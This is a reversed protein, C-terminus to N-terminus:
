RGTLGRRVLLPKIEPEKGRFKKYLEMPDDTGGAALIHTRFARATASDFLGNEKFAEFADADLVEAWIYSYYGASYGGAFIHRFYPTRYRSIIEPILGIRDLSRKEFVIPDQATTDALTHWDMDLLSAALYEVTAFGQNFRSSKEIKAILEDPMPEGTEYHRAYLKLVEPHLAWNEMIQSPLEVFDVAVSTGSLSPYTCNSLLGHLAHGFEHFLTEVEDLSLLSPKEATPKAFNGCNTIIPTRRDGGINSQERLASMWAGGRKSARPFYDTYLIGIHSGDAEQVEFTKVEPHYVPLDTREVFQIGYLRGAVDFVGQIVNELKFYPRLQEEDLSYEAQKVKEAYYWWDWPQLAFSHGEAKILAQMKKAEARASNLAPKWLRDLLEYVNAPNKAMNRELQFHAHTPYGLLNAREARLSAIRSVIKKNDLENNNDGRMSYAKFMKERLDRKEAYQLFPILSPHHLTFVWKGQLGRKAAEEAATEKVVAPLGALDAEDDIVLQFANDEKLINEGFQLTLLSLEENIQRLRAKQEENLNAGGRVFDLYTEQLLRRQEDTLELIDRQEYLTKIRGFLKENLLIDDGHKSMLPAVQKAIAQLQENTNASNLNSFVRGVRTLLQGSLEMAELTNAFTPEEPNQAIVDIEKSHQRIGEEIAPLFHYEKIEAFPPVGFPTAFEKLLPNRGSKGCGLGLVLAAVMLLLTRRM